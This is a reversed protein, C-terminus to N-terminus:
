LSRVFGGKATAAISSATNGRMHRQVCTAACRVKGVHGNLSDFNPMGLGVKRQVSNWCDHRPSLTIKSRQRPSGGKFEHEDRLREFFHKATVTEHNPSLDELMWQYIVDTVGDLKRRKIEALHRYGLVLFFAHDEERRCKVGWSSRSGCTREQRWWARSPSEQM